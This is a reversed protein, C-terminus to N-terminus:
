TNKHQEIYKQTTIHITHKTFKRTNNIHIHTSFLQWLTALWNCNFIIYIMYMNRPKLIDSSEKRSEYEMAKSQEM